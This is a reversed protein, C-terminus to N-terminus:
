FLNITVQPPNGNTDVTVAGDSRETSGYIGAETEAYMSVSQYHMKTAVELIAADDGTEPILVIRMEHGDYTLEWLKM